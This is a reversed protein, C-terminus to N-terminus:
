EGEESLPSAALADSAFAPWSMVSHRWRYLAEYLRRRDADSELLLDALDIGNKALARLREVEAELEAIRAEYECLHCRIIPRVSM